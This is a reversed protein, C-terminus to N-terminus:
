ELPMRPDPVLLREMEGPEFKTLGGSYTRGHGVTAAARVSAALRDLADGQLPERPYLGHAVNICRAGALNRVVAPSRRAMYTTLIPAPQRLGVSWWARRHRAIYGDSVGDREAAELFRGVARRGEPDLEDLDAPLDVVARLGDLERLADGADFLESARTISRFLVSPPLESERPDVVWVRNAGTAAGRHVRCIDGLPILGEVGTSRARLLGTWHGSGELRHRGVRRGGTLAGLEPVTRVRRMRVSTPRSGIEFCTIVGTTATGEFPLEEPTIVHLATGGLGDLVLERLLSGYNVDLWESSTIFAGWDGPRAQAVTALFFHVHLGALQSARLGRSRATASLWEKWRGSIGHHRVYPPNGIYLTTGDIRGPRYDRYDQVLVRAREEAGITTLTARGLLAALPDLEIAVIEAGPMARAAAAAFRASGSGPDVIRAPAPRARAWDVMASVIPQPTYVAGTRRREQPSRLSCFAEGLPDGGDRIQTRLAEIDTGRPAEAARALAQEDASLPGITAAGLAIAAGALRPISGLAAATLTPVV